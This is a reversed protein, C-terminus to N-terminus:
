SDSIQSIDNIIFYYNFYIIFIFIFVGIHMKEDPINAFAHFLLELDVLFHLNHKGPHMNFIWAVVTNFSVNKVGLISRKWFMKIRERSLSIQYVKKLIIDLV